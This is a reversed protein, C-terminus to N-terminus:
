YGRGEVGGVEVGRLCVAVTVAVAAAATPELAREARGVEAGTGVTVRGTGGGSDSIEGGGEGESPKMAVESEAREAMATEVVVRVAVARM